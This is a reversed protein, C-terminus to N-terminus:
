GKGKKYQACENLYDEYFTRLNFAQRNIERVDSCSALVQLYELLNMLEQDDYDDNWAIIPIGNDLQYGFSYVSNDVIVIDKLERDGLVRLDKMLVGQVVVCNERYLRHHILTGTPDLYDLVADAYCKHSATFVVVEFMESARELVERAHPRINISAKLTEGNPFVIDLTADSYEAFEDVCHVLTEDLDFILTKKTEYGPFRPLKLVRNAISNKQLSPLKRIFKISKFTQYLHKQYARAAKNGGTSEHLTETKTRLLKRLSSARLRKISNEQM